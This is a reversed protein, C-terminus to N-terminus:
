EFILIEFLEDLIMEDPDGTCYELYLLELKDRILGLGEELGPSSPEVQFVDNRLHYQGNAYDATVLIPDSM